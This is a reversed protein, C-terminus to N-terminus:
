GMFLRAGSRTAVLVDQYGDRDVDGAALGRGNWIPPAFDIPELLAMVDIGIEFAQLRTFPKAGAPSRKALPQATVSVAPDSIEIAALTQLLDSGSTPQVEAIASSAVLLCCILPSSVSVPLPIM